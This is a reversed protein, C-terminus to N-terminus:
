PGHARRRHQLRGAGRSRDAPVRPGARRGRRGVARRFGRGRRCARRRLAGRRRSAGKGSSGPRAILLIVRREARRSRRPARPTGPARGRRRRPTLEAAPGAEAPRGAEAARREAAPLHPSATSSSAPSCRRGAPAQVRTRPRPPLTLAAPPPPRPAPPAAVPRSHSAPCSRPWSSRPEGPVAHPPM